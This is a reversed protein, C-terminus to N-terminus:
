IEKFRVGKRFVTIKTQSTNIILKWKDFYDKLIQLGEQLGEATESFIVIDDAYLFLLLKLSGVEVDKFGDGALKEEELDNVYM